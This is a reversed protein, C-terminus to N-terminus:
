NGSHSLAGVFLWASRGWGWADPPNPLEVWDWQTEEGPPHAVVAVPRDQAPRRPECAPRLGRARIQRTLTQYSQAFGLATVEDFLTMAWLHPDERLQETAYAVFPDFAGKDSRARGGAVRGGNVYARITKRDHGLHRAIASITWGRAYLAHADVDDERTLM